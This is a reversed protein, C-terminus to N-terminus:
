YGGYLIASVFVRRASIFAASATLVALLSAVCDAARALALAALAATGAPITSLLPAPPPPPSPPAPPPTPLLPSFRGAREVVSINLPPACMGSGGGMLLSGRAWAMSAPPLDADRPADM